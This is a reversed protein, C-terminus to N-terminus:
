LGIGYKKCQELFAKAARLVEKDVFSSGCKPCVVAGSAELWGPLKQFKKGCKPCLFALKISGSLGAAAELLTERVWQSKGQTSNEVAKKIVEAEEKGFRAGILVDKPSVDSLRPRGMKKTIMTNFL